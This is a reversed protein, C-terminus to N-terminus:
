VQRRGLADASRDHIVPEQRDRREPPKRHSAQGIDHQVRQAAERLIVRQNDGLGRQFGTPHFLLEQRQVEFSPPVTVSAAPKLSCVPPGVRCRFNNDALHEPVRPQVERVPHPYCPDSFDIEENVAPQDQLEVARGEM